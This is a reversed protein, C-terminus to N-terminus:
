VNSRSKYKKYRILSSVFPVDFLINGILIIVGLMLHGDLDSVGTSYGRCFWDYVFFVGVLLPLVILMPTFFIESKVIKLDDYDTKLYEKNTDGMNKV